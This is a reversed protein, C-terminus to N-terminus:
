MGLYGYPDDIYEYPLGVYGYPWDLYGYTSEYYSYPDGFLGGSFYAIDDVTINWEYTAGSEFFFSDELDVLTGNVEVRVILIYHDEKTSLETTEWPELPADQLANQGFADSGLPVLYVEAIAYDTENILVIKADGDDGLVKAFAFGALILLLVIRKM